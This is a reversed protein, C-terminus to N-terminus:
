LTPTLSEDISCLCFKRRRGGDVHAGVDLLCDAHDTLVGLTADDAGNETRCMRSEPEITRDAGRVAPEGHEAREDANRRAPVGWHQGCPCAADAAFRKGNERKPFAVLQHAVLREEAARAPHLPDCGRACAGAYRPLIRDLDGCSPESLRGHRRPPTSNPKEQDRLKRLRPNAALPRRAGRM